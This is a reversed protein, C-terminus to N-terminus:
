SISFGQKEKGRKKQLYVTTQKQGEQIHTTYFSITTNTHTMAVVSGQTNHTIHPLLTYPFLLANKQIPNYEEASSHQTIFLVSYRVCIQTSYQVAGYQVKWLSM